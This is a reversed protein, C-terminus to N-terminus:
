PRVFLSFQDAFGSCIEKKNSADEYEAQFDALGEKLTEKLRGSEGHEEALAICQSAKSIVAESYSEYGCNMQASTALGHEYMLQTCDYDDSALVSTFLGLSLSVM